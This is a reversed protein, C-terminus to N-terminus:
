AESVDTVQVGPAGLPNLLIVESTGVAELRTQMLAAEGPSRGGCGARNTAPRAAASRSRACFGAATSPQEAQAPSLRPSYVARTNAPAMDNSSPRFTLAAM